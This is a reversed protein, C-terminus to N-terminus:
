GYLRGSPTRYRHGGAVARAAYRAIEVREAHKDMQEKLELIKQATKYNEINKWVDNKRLDGEFLRALIAAPNQMEEETMTFIIYKARGPPSHEIAFPHTDAPTRMEPAIWVLSMDPDYDEIIEKLRLQNQTIMHGEGDSRWALGLMGDLQM